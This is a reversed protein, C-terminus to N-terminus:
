KKTRGRRLPKAAAKAPARVDSTAAQELWQLSEVYVMFRRVYDPSLERMMALSQLVLAHSNLPGSQAPKRALAQTLRDLAQGRSWALRFHHASALEDPDQAAEGGAAAARAVAAARLKRNLQVLPGGVPATSRAAQRVQPLPQAPGREVRQECGGLAAQLKVILVAQVDPTQTPLRRALAELAHFRVPELRAAGRARLAGLREQLAAPTL